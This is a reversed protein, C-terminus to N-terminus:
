TAQLAPLKAAYVRGSTLGFCIDVLQLQVNFSLSLM